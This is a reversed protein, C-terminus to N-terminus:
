SKIYAKRINEASIIFGEEKFPYFKGTLPDQGTEWIIKVNYIPLSVNNVQKNLWRNYESTLIELIQDDSM